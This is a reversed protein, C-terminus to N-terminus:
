LVLIDRKTDYLRPLMMKRIMPLQPKNRLLQDLSDWIALWQITPAMNHAQDSDQIDMHKTHHLLLDQLDLLYVQIVLFLVQIVLLLVQIVLLLVQIPMLELLEQTHQQTLMPAQTDLLDTDQFHRFMPLELLEPSVKVTELLEV